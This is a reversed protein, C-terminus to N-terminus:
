YDFKIQLYGTRQPYPHFIYGKYNNINDVGVSATFRDAFQFNAKVDVFFFKSAGGYTNPNNDSNDVANYQRGSYRAAVSYTVNNGQHYSAVAKLMSNPIRIPKKGALQPNASNRM